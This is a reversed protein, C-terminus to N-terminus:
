MASVWHGDLLMPKVGHLKTRQPQTFPVMNVGVKGTYRASNFCRIVDVIVANQKLYRFELKSLYRNDNSTQGTVLSPHVSLVDTVTELFRLVKMGVETVPLM